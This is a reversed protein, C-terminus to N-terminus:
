FPTKDLNISVGADAITVTKGTVQEIRKKFNEAHSNSDSLHLLVINNVQALDNAELLEVATDINMHNLIIRNKLSQHINRQELIESDYNVELLVNNLGKFKYESYYSDTLALTNGMEPHHILFALPEPCDHIVDFAKVKFGKFLITQGSAIPHLRHSQIGSAEITGRSTYVDIGAKLYEKVKGFHDGHIHSVVCGVVKSLKYDIANLVKNIGIGAEWLLVDGNEAIFIYSNGKSGSGNIILRM